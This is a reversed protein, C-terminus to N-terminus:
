DECFMDHWSTSLTSTASMPSHKLSFIDFKELGCLGHHERLGGYQFVPYIELIDFKPILDSERLNADRLIIEISRKEQM